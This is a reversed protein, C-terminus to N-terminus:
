TSQASRIFGFFHDLDVSIGAVVLAWRGLGTEFSRVIFDSERKVLGITFSPTRLQNIYYFM